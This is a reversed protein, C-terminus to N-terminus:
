GKLQQNLTTLREPTGVDTWLGPLLEGSVQRNAIANKMLPALPVAQNAAVKAFFSPRFLGVGSYTYTTLTGSDNINVVQGDVLGFDGSLNHSPNNVLWFHATRDRSLLPIGRLDCDIYIDGNIVLFPEDCNQNNTDVLKPLANIIGGATELAGNSEWSYQISAGFQQGDGLYQEIEDGLWALNIVIDRIGCTVLRIIHHEILPKGAVKLLPKPLTDTLPRMREGRGAALIM